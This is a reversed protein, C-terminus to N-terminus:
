AERTKEDGNTRENTVVPCALTLVGLDQCPARLGCSGIGHPESLKRRALDALEQGHAIPEINGGEDQVNLYLYNVIDEGNREIGDLVLALAGHENDFDGVLNNTRLEWVAYSKM